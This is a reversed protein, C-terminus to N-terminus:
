LVHTLKAKPTILTKISEDQTYHFLKQFVENMFYYEEEQDDENYEVFFDTLKGGRKSQFEILIKALAAACYPFESVLLAM